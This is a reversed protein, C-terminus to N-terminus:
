NSMGPGFLGIVASPSAGKEQGVAHGCYAIVYKSPHWSVTQSAGLAPVRHLPAGTETACIDIYSGASAIALYEGDHSYSLATISRDCATITRASIWESLDFINVISDRGGSALHGGRPDLAVAMCGAVHAAPKELLRLSPYELVRLTTEQHHTLVIADGTHNWTATSAVPSDKDSTHWKEKPDDGVSGYELFYLSHGASVYLLTRGDPSYDTWLPSFRLSIAQTHRSQRADWFVVQRDKSSSTCFLDPHTPNWSVYDVDDKHASSFLSAQRPEMSTEPMFVRASKDIGVAALRRGDCSWAVHNMGQACPIRVDRPRFASFNPYHVGRAAPTTHLPPSPPRQAQPVEDEEKTKHSSM